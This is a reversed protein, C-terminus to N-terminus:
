GFYVPGVPVTRPMMSTQFAANGAPVGSFYRHQQQQYNMGAPGAMWGQQQHPQRFGGSQQNWAGSGSIAPNDVQHTFQHQLQRQHQQQQHLAALSSQSLAANTRVSHQSANSASQPWSYIQQQQQHHTQKGYATGSNRNGAQGALAQGGQFPPLSVMGGFSVSPQNLTNATVPTRPNSNRGYGTTPGSIPKNTGGNQWAAAQPLPFPPLANTANRHMYQLQENSPAWLMQQQSYSPAPKASPASGLSMRSSLAAPLDDSRPSTSFLVSDVVSMVVASDMMSHANLTQQPKLYGADWAQEYSNSQQQFLLSQSLASSNLGQQHQQPQQSSLMLARLAASRYMDDTTKKMESRMELLDQVDLPTLPDVTTSTRDYDYKAHTYGVVVVERFSVASRQQKRLM